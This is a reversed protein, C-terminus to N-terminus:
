TGENEKERIRQLEKVDQNIVKLRIEERKKIDELPIDIHVQWPFESANDNILMAGDYYNPRNSIIILNIVALIICGGAIGICLIDYWTM